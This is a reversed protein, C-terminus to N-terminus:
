RIASHTMTFNSSTLQIFGLKCTYIRTDDYFSFNDFYVNNKTVSVFVAFNSSNNMNIVSVSSFIIESSIDSGYDSSYIVSSGGASSQFNYLVMVNTFHLKSSQVAIFPLNLNDNESFLELIRLTVNELSFLTNGQVDISSNFIDITRFANSDESSYFSVFFYPFPSKYTIIVSLPLSFQADGQIPYISQNTQLIIRFYDVTTAIQQFCEILTPYPNSESGTPFSSKAPGVFVITESFTLIPLTFLLRLLFKM